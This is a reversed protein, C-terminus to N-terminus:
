CERWVHGEDLYGHWFPQAKTDYTQISARIELSGDPCERFTWPPSQVGHIGSGPKAADVDHQANDVPLFFLVQEFQYGHGDTCPRPGTYDGPFELDGIDAVRRGIM